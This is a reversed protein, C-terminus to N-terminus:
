DYGLAKCVLAQPVFIEATALIKGEQKELLFLSLNIGQFIM